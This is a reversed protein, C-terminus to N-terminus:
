VTLNETTLLESEITTPYLSSSKVTSGPPDTSTAKGLMAVSRAFPRLHTERTDAWGPCYARARELAEQTLTLQHWMYILPELKQVPPRRRM